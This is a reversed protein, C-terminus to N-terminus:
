ELIIEDIFIWADEGAAEHWHPVKGVNKVKFRFEKVMRTDFEVSRKEISQGRKEHDAENFSGKLVDSKGTEENPIEIEYNDPFFIWSNTYQYFAFSIKSLEIPEDFSILVNMDNGWYGQWNGDKFNLTGTKGDFLDGSFYDYFTGSNLDYSVNLNKVSLGKHYVYEQEYVKWVQHNGRMARAKLVKSQGSELELQGDWSDWENSNKLELTYDGKLEAEVQLKGQYNMGSNLVFPVQDPGYNVGMSDLFQYHRNLRKFFNAEDREETWFAESAALLRPFVRQDLTSEDPIRESWVNVEGGKILEEDYEYGADSMLYFNYLKPVDINDISYDLYCHSTPSMIVGRGKEAAEWGSKQNRWVQVIASSDLGPNLIEDWGIITRGKTKLYDAMHNIFWAQLAEFDELNHQKLLNQCYASEEWRVKPAEDGGIHIYQSPFLECVEDMVDELFRFTTDTPCYIDKFVGWDTAVEFPGETCALHPYAALAAQSHGPMEIEPVITIQRDAAYAVIEKIDEQTYFGGYRNGSSDPRWAGIETLRPYKKIEIRWAQDETLHWHLVNFKYLALLDIYKKVTEKPFFHRSCDLLMGRWEYEPSDEISLASCSLGSLEKNQYLPLRFLQEFTKMAHFLGQRHEAQLLIFNDEGTVVYETFILREYPSVDSLLIACQGERLDDEGLAGESIHRISIPFNISREIMSKLYHADELFLSDYIIILEGELRIDKAELFNIVLPKPIIDIEENEIKLYVGRQTSNESSEKETEKQKNSCSCLVLMIAVVVLRGM